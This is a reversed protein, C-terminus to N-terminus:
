SYNSRHENEKSCIERESNGVFERFAYVLIGDCAAHADNETPYWFLNEGTCLKQKSPFSNAGGAAYYIVNKVPCLLAATFWEKGKKNFASHVYRDSAKLRIDFFDEYRQVLAPDPVFEPLNGKFYYVHADICMKGANCGSSNFLKCIRRHIKIPMWDPNELIPVKSSNRKKTPEDATLVLSNFFTSGFKGIGGLISMQPDSEVSSSDDESSSEEKMKETHTGQELSASRPKIEGLCAGKRLDSQDVLKRNEMDSLVVGKVARHADSM